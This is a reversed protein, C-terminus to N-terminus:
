PPTAGPSACVPVGIRRATVVVAEVDNFETEQRPSPPQLSLTAGLGLLALSAAITM